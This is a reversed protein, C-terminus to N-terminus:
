AVAQRVRLRLDDDRVGGVARADLALAGVDELELGAVEVGARGVVLREVGGAVVGGLEVVGGARGAQGLADQVGMAVDEAVLLEDVAVVHLVALAEVAHALPRPRGADRRQEPRPAEARDLDDQLALAAEVRVALEREEAAM